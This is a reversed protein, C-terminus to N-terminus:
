QLDEVVVISLQALPVAVVRTYTVTNMRRSFVWVNEMVRGGRAAGVPGIAIADRRTHCRGRTLVVDARSHELLDLGVYLVRVHLDVDDGFDGLSRGPQTHEDM